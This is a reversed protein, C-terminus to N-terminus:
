MVSAAFLFMQCLDWVFDVGTVIVPIYALMKAKPKKRVYLEVAAIIVTIVAFNAMLNLPFPLLYVTAFTRLFALPGYNIEKAFGHSVMLSTMYAAMFNFGYPLLWRDKIEM